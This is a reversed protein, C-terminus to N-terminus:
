ASSPMRSGSIDRPSPSTYLLCDEYRNVCMACMMMGISVCVRVDEYRNVCMACMMMGISVCVRVDEEYRNVSMKM